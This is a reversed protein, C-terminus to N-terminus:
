SEIVRELHCCWTCAGGDVSIVQGAVHESVALFMVAEAMDEATQPEEQSIM